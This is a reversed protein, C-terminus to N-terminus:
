KTPSSTYSRTVKFNEQRQRSSEESEKTLTKLDQYLYAYGKGFDNEPQNKQNEAYMVADMAEAEGPLVVSLAAKGGGEITRDWGSKLIDGVHEGDSISSIVGLSGGASGGVVATAGLATTATGGYALVVPATVVVAVAGAGSVAGKITSTTVDWQFRMNLTVAERLSLSERGGIAEYQRVLANDMGKVFGTAGGVIGGVVVALIAATAITVPEHGDPDDYKL